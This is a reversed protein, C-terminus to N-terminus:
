RAASTALLLRIRKGFLLLESGLLQVGLRALRLITAFRRLNPWRLLEQKVSVTQAGRDALRGRLVALRPDPM